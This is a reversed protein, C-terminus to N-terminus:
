PRVINITVSCNNMTPQFNLGTSTSNSSTLNTSPAVNNLSFGLDFVGIDQQPLNMANNPVHAFMPQHTPVAAQEPVVMEDSEYSVPAIIPVEFATVADSHGPWPNDAALVVGHSVDTAEDGTVTSTPISSLNNSLVDSIQERREDSM